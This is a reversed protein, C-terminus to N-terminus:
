CMHDWGRRGGGVCYLLHRVLVCGRGFVARLLRAIYELVQVLEEMLTEEAKDLFDAAADVVAWLGELDRFINGALPVPQLVAHTPENFHHLFHTIGGQSRTTSPFSMRTLKHWLRNM